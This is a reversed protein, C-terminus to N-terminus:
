KRSTPVGRWIRAALLGTATLGQAVMLFLLTKELGWIPLFFFSALFGGLSAGILDLGYLRGSAVGVERGIELYARTAVLYLAGSLCGSIGMFGYLGIGVLTEPTKVWIEWGLRLALFLTATLALGGIQLVMAAVGIKAPARSLRFGWFAGLALGLMFLSILFGLQLYLYGVLIQYLVLLLVELALSVFGLVGVVGYWPLTERLRPNKRVLLPTILFALALFLIWLGFAQWIRNAFFGALVPHHSALRYLLEQYYGTPILDRNPVVGEERSATMAQFYGLRFPSVAESLMLPNLYHLVLSRERVRQNLLAANLPEVGAELSGTLHIEEGVLWQSRPFVLVLTHYLTGIARQQAPGVMEKAGGLSLGVMGNPNLRDRALLFFELTYFRNLQLTSPGPLDVLILDYRTKGQGLVRRADGYQLRLRPDSRILSGIEQNLGLACAAWERDLELYDVRQLSPHKLIERLTGSIGGGILFIKKPNPHALLPLHAREEGRRPDPLSFQYIGGAYLDVQGERKIFSYRGFVTEGTKILQYPKWKSAQTTFDWGRAQTFALILTFLSLALPALRWLWPPRAGFFPHSLLFSVIFFGASILLALAVGGEWALLLLGLVGGAAAGLAEWLYTRSIATDAEGKPGTLARCFLPFLAGSLITFPAYGALSIPILV